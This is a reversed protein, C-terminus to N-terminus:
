KPSLLIVKKIDKPYKVSYGGAFYGGLSHECLYFSSIKLTQRWKEIADIFYDTCQRTSTFKVQSRSSLAMEITNTIFLNYKKMLYPCLGIFNTNSGIFGHIFIINEKKSSIEKSRLTHLYRNNDLYVDEYVMDIGPKIGCLLM